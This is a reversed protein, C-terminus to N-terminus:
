LEEHRLQSAFASSPPPLRHVVIIVAISLFLLAIFHGFTGGVDRILRRRRTRASCRVSSVGHRDVYSVQTVADVLLQDAFREPVAAFDGGDSQGFGVRVVAAGELSGAELPESVHIEGVDLARVSRDLERSRVGHSTGNPHIVIPRLPPVDPAAVPDHPQRFVLRLQLAHLARSEHLPALHPVYHPRPIRANDVPALVVNSRKVRPHRLCKMPLIRLM